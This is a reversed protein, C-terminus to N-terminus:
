ASLTLPFSLCHSLSSYRIHNLCSALLLLLIHVCNIAVCKFRIMINYIYIRAVSFMTNYLQVHSYIHMSVGLLVIGTVDVGNSVLDEIMQVEGILAANM